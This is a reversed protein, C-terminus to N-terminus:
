TRGRLSRIVSRSWLWSTKTVGRSMFRSRQTPRDSAFNDAGEGAKWEDLFAPMKLHGAIRVPRDSFYLTQQGVNVLRLKSGDVKLDEATQVFM